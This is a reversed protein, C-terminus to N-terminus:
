RTDDIGVCRFAKTLLYKIIFQEIAVTTWIRYKPVVKVTKCILENGTSLNRLKHRQKCTKPVDLKWAVSKTKGFYVSDTKM